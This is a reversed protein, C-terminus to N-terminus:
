VLSPKNKAGLYKCSWQRCYDVQRDSQVFFLFYFLLCDCSKTIKLLDGDLQKLNRHISVFGDMAWTEDTIRSLSSHALARMQYLVLM